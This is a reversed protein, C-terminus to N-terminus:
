PPARRGLSVQRRHQVSRGAGQLPLQRGVGASAGPAGSAAAARGAGPGLPGLLGRLLAGGLLSDFGEPWAAAVGSPASASSSAARFAQSALFSRQPSWAKRLGAARLNRAPCGSDGAAALTPPPAAWGARWWKKRNRTKPVEHGLAGPGSHCM